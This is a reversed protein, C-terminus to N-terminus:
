APLSWGTSAAWCEASHVILKVVPDKLDLYSGSGGANSGHATAAAVQRKFDAYCDRAFDDARLYDRFLLAFRQNPNNIQRIHIHALRYEDRILRAYKKEWGDPATASDPFPDDRDIESAAQFGEANLCSLDFANLDKVSIQIDIIPKAWIGPVATSGIHAIVQAPLQTLGCLQQQYQAFRVPWDRDYPVPLSLM